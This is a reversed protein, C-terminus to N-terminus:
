KKLNNEAFKKKSFILLIVFVIVTILFFWVSLFPYTTSAVFNNTEVETVINSVFLFPYLVTRVTFEPDSPELKYYSLPVGRALYFASELLDALLFVFFLINITLDIKSRKRLSIIAYVLILFAIITGIVSGVLWPVSEAFYTGIAINTSLAYSFFIILIFISYHYTIKQPLESVMLNIDNKTTNCNVKQLLLKFSSVDYYGRNWLRLLLSLKNLM